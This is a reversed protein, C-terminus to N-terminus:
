IKVVEIGHEELMTLGKMERYAESYVVRAFGSQAITACCKVCPCLTVYATAGKVSVGQRAAHLIGNLEAHIVHDHTILNGTHVVKTPQGFTTSSFRVEEYECSNDWGSPTGNYSGLMVHEPTVILCGVQKRVAKSLTALNMAMQMYVFDLEKSTAM